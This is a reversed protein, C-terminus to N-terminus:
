PEELCIDVPENSDVKERVCEEVFSIRAQNRTNSLLIELRSVIEQAKIEERAANIAAEARLRELESNASTTLANNEGSLQGIQAQLLALQSEALRARATNEGTQLNLQSQLLALESAFVESLAANEGSQSGLRAQLLALESASVAALANNEGTQLGIRAQLLALESTAVGALATNEGSQLGIQAQLLALESASLAALANNEGTRLGIQAQLLELESQSLESLKKNQGIQLSLIQSAGSFVGNLIKMPVSAVELIESPRNSDYDILVGDEFKLDYTSKTLFGASQKVSSIPGAQPLTQSVTKTTVWGRDVEAVCAEESICKKVKLLVDVPTRYLIGNASHFAGTSNGKVPIIDKRDSVGDSEIKLGYCVLQQNLEHVSFYNAFDVSLEIENPHGICSSDASELDDFPDSPLPSGFSVAGTFIALESLADATRDAAVVNISSLLGKPTISIKHTDDRSINHKPNLYYAKSLDASPEELAFTVDVVYKNPTELEAGKKTLNELNTKATNFATTKNDFDTKATEKAVEQKVLELRYKAKVEDSIAVNNLIAETIAIASNADALVSKSQALASDASTLAKIAGDKEIATRKIKVKTMQKPLFYTMGSHNTTQSTTEVTACGAVLAVWCLLSTKPFSFHRM